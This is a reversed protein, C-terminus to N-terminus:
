AASPPRRRATARSSATPSTSQCTTAWPASGVCWSPPRRPATWMMTPSSWWPAVPKWATSSFAPRWIWTRSAPPIPSCRRLPRISTPPARGRRWVVRRWPGPSRNPSASTTSTAAFSNPMPRAPGGRDGPSRASSASTALSPGATRWVSGGDLFGSDVSAARTALPPIPSPHSLVPRLVPLRAAGM